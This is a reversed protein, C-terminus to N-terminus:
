GRLGDGSGPDVVELDPDLVNTTGNGNSSRVSYKYGANKAGKKITAVLLGYDDPEVTVTLVDRKPFPHERKGNDKRKFDGPDISVDHATDDQNRVLWAVPGGPICALPAPDEIQNGEDVIITALIQFGTSAAGAKPSRKKKKGQKKKKSM